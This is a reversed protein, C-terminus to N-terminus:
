YRKINEVSNFAKTLAERTQVLHGSGYVIMVKKYINVREEVMKIIFENRIVGVDLSMKNAWSPDNDVQPSVDDTSIKLYDIKKGLKTFYMKEFDNLTFVSNLKIRKLSARELYSILKKKIGEEDSAGQRKLQPLQRLGYFFVLEEGAYGRQLIREKITLDSPEAYNFSINMKLAENIACVGEGCNKYGNEECEKAYEIDAENNVQSFAM